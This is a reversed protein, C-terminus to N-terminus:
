EGFSIRPTRHNFLFPFHQTLCLSTLIKRFYVFFLTSIPAKLLSVPFKWPLFLNYLLEGVCRIIFVKIRLAAYPGPNHPVRELFHYAWLLCNVAQAIAANALLSSIIQTDSARLGMTVAFPQLTGGSRSIRTLFGWKQPHHM